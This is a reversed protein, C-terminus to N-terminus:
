IRKNIQDNKSYARDTVDRCECVMPNTMTVTRTLCAYLGAELSDKTWFFIYYRHTHQEIEKKASAVGASSGKRHKSPKAHRLHTKRSMAM